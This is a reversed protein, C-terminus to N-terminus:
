GRVIRAGEGGQSLAPFRARASALLETSGPRLAYYRRPPRGEDHAITAEEWEGTVLGMTEFRRLVQYVTGPRLKAAEAIDFGYRFGADLAQLVMATPYTMRVRESM